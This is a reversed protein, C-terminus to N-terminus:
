EIGDNLFFDRDAPDAIDDGSSSFPAKIQNVTAHRLNEQGLLTKASGCSQAGGVRENGSM